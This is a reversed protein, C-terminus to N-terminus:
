APLFASVALKIQKRLEGGGRRIICYKATRPHAKGRLCENYFKFPLSSQFTLDGTQEATARNTRLPPKQLSCSGIRSPRLARTESTVLFAVSTVKHPPSDSKEQCRVWNYEEGGFYLYM